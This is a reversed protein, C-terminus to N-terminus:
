KATVTSQYSALRWRDQQRVYVATVLLAAKVVPRDKPRAELQMTGTLVAADRGYSRVRPPQNYQLAAYRLTGDKLAALLEPKTQVWGSSHVYLCDPTLLEDLAAVDSHLMAALRAEDVRLIAAVEADVPGIPQARAAPLAAFFALLLGTTLARWSM